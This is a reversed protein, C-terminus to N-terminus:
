KQIHLQQLAAKMVYEVTNLDLSALAKEGQATPKGGMAAELLAEGAISSENCGNPPPITLIGGEYLQKWAEQVSLSPGALNGALESGEEREARALTGLTPHRVPMWAAEGYVKRWQRTADWDGLNIRDGPRLHRLVVSRMCPECRLAVVPSHLVIHPIGGESEEVAITPDAQNSPDEVPVTSDIPSKFADYISGSKCVNSTDLPESTDCQAVLNGEQTEHDIQEVVESDRQDPFNTGDVLPAVERAASTEDEKDQGTEMEAAETEAAEM